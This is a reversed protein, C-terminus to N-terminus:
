GCYCVFLIFNAM